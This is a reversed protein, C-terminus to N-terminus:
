FLASVLLWLFYLYLFYAILSSQYSWRTQLDFNSYYLVSTELISDIIVILQHWLYEIGPATHQLWNHHLTHDDAMPRGLCCFSAFMLTDFLKKFFLSCSWVCHLAPSQQFLSCYECRLILCGYSPPLSDLILHCLGLQSNSFADSSSYFRKWSSIMGVAPHWFPAIFHTRWCRIFVLDVLWNENLALDAPKAHSSAMRWTSHFLLLMHGGRFALCVDLSQVEAVNADFDNHFGFAHDMLSYFAVSWIILTM